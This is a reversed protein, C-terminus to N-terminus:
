IEPLEHDMAESNPYTQLTTLKCPAISEAWRIRETMHVKNIIFTATMLHINLLIQVGSFM